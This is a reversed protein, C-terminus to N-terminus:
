ILMVGLNVQFVQMIILGRSTYHQVHLVTLTVKFPTGTLCTLIGHLYTKMRSRRKQKQRLSLLYIDLRSNPVHFVTQTTPRM